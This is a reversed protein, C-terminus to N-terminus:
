IPVYSRLTHHTIIHSLFIYLGWSPVAAHYSVYRVNRGYHHLFFFVQQSFFAFNPFSGLAYSVDPYFLYNLNENSYTSVSANRSFTNQFSGSFALVTLHETKCTTIHSGHKWLLVMFLSVTVIAYPSAGFGRWLMIRLLTNQWGRTASLWLASTLFLSPHHQSLM